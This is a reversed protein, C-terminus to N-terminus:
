QKKFSVSGHQSNIKVLNGSDKAGYYGQYKKSTHTTEKNTYNFGDSDRLSGHQFYLDFNFNFGADYGITMSTFRTDIDITNVIPAVREIKLSGHSGRLKLNKFVDGIRTTLHNGDGKLSNVNDVKLSGHNCDYEINEAFEVTSKTHNAKITINETKSITYGSHNASIEGENIYEFYSNRTHNFDIVNDNSMLEKTTIKGHDCRIKSSGKLQDLNISGFKNYLDVNNTMPMKIVYDIEMNLNMKKGWNWWNNKSKEIKTIASVLNNSASFDIDIGDLREQVKEDNNGSVKITIDFEIRNQDWTIINLNGFSNSVKLTANESVNFSKKITRDKTTKATEIETNALAIFPMLLLLLALRFQIKLNM